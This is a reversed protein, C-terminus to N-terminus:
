HPTAGAVAQPAATGRVIALAHLLLSESFALETPRIQVLHVLLNVAHEMGAHAIARANATGREAVYTNTAALLRRYAGDSEERFAREDAAAITSPPQMM